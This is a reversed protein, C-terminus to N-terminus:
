NEEACVRRVLSSHTWGDAHAPSSVSEERKVACLGLLSLPWVSKINIIIYM